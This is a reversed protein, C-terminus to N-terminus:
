NDVTADTSGGVTQIRKIFDALYNSGRSFIIGTLVMGVFPIQFVVGVAEFLDVGAAVALFVALAIATVQKWNITKNFVLKFYEVIAEVTIALILLVILNM